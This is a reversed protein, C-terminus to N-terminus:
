KRKSLFQMFICYIFLYGANAAKKGNFTIRTCYMIFFFKVKHILFIINKVHRKERKERKEVHVCTSISHVAMAPRVNWEVLFLHSSEKRLKPVIM